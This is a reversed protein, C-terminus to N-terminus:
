KTATLVMSWAFRGPVHPFAYDDVPQDWNSRGVSSQFLLWGASSKFEFCGSQYSTGPDPDPVPLSAGQPGSECVHEHVIDFKVTKVWVLFRYLVHDSIFVSYLVTM